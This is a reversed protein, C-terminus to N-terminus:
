SPPSSPQIPATAEADKPRSSKNNEQENRRGEGKREEREGEGEGGGGRGEGEKGGAQGGRGRQEGRSWPAVSPLVYRREGVKVLVRRSIREEREAKFAATKERAEPNIASMMPLSGEMM